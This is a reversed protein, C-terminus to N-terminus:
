GSQPLLSNVGEQSGLWFCWVTSKEREKIISWEVIVPLLPKRKRMVYKEASICVSKESGQQPLPFYPQLCWCTKRKKSERFSCIRRWTLRVTEPLERCQPYPCQSFIKEGYMRSRWLLSECQNLLGLALSALAIWLKNELKTGSRGLHGWVWFCWRHLSFAM